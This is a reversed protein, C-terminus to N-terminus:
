LVPRRCFQNGTYIGTSPYYGLGFTQTWPGLLNTASYVSYTSGTAAPWTLQSVGNSVTLGVAFPAPTTTVFDAYRTPYIEPATTSYIGMEGTLQYAFSPIPKGFYNTNLQNVANTYTYVYIEMYPQGASYPQAFAYLPTHSQQGPFHRQGARGIVLLLSVVNTIHGPFM